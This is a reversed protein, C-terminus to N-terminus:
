RVMKCEIDYSVMLLVTGIDVNTNRGLNNLYVRTGYHLVNPSATDLWRLPASAASTSLLGGQDLVDSRTSPVFSWSIDTDNGLQYTKLDPYQQYDALTKSSSDNYDNCIHVVPLM